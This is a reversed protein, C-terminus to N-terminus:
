KARILRETLLPIEKGHGRVVRLVRGMQSLTSNVPALPEPPPLGTWEITPASMGRGSRSVLLLPDGAPVHRELASALDLVSYPKCLLETAGAIRAADHYYEARQAVTVVIPLAAFRNQHRLRACTSFASRGRNAADLIVLKAPTRAAYEEAQECTDALLVVFNSSSYTVRLANAFTPDPDSVVITPPTTM